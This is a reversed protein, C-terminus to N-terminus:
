LQKIQEVILEMKMGRSGKVLIIDDKKLLKVVVASIEGKDEFYQIKEKAIMSEYAKRMEDGTILVHDAAAAAKKLVILHEDFSVSGLERMDGLVAIRTGKGYLKSLTFFAENMSNPNANYCDNIITINNVKEILMRGYGHGKETEFRELGTKLELDTLGFNLACASAAIANLATTNGYTKLVANITRDNYHLALTPHLEKTYSVEARLMSDNRSGFTFSKPLVPLYKRLREDDVNVFCTGDHKKLYGFM